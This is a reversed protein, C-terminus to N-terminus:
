EGHPAFDQLLPSNIAFEQRLQKRNMSKRRAIPHHFFRAIPTIFM